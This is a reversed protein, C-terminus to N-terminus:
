VMTMAGSTKGREGACEATGRGLDRCIQPRTAYVTCFFETSGARTRIELSACHGATMRMYARNEIFHAVRPADQELRKWDDGTVRVFKQAAWFCCAGCALCDSPTNVVVGLIGRGEAIALLADPPGDPGSENRCREARKGSVARSERSWAHKGREADRL